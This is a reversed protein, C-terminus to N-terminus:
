KWSDAKRHRRERVLLIRNIQLMSRTQIKRGDHMRSPLTSGTSYDIQEITEWTIIWSVSKDELANKRDKICDNAEEDPDRSSGDSENQLTLTTKDRLGENFVENFEKFMKWDLFM